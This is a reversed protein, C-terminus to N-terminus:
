CGGREGSGAVDVVVIVVFIVVLAMSGQRIVATAVFEWACGVVGGGGIVAVYRAHRWFVQEM